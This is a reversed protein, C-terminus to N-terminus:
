RINYAIILATVFCLYPILTKMSGRKKIDDFGYALVIFYAPLFPYIFRHDLSAAVSVLMFINLGIFLLLPYFIVKKERLIKLSGTLFFVSLIIKVFNGATQLLASDNGSKYSFSPIPGIVGSIILVGQDILTPTRGIRAAALASQDVEMAENLDKQIFLIAGTLLIIGILLYGLRVFNKFRGKKNLFLYLGFSIILFIPFITRFMGTALISLFAILYLSFKRKLIAKYTYYISLTVILIFFPEKRGSANFYISIPNLGYLILLIKSVSYDTFILRSTKYLFFCSLLHFLINFVKMNFLEYGGLAYIYKVILPFGFDSIGVYQFLYNISDEFGKAQLEQGIKHYFIEDTPEFGLPNNYFETYFYFSGFVYLIQYVLIFFFINKISTKQSLIFFLLFGFLIINHFTGYVDYYDYGSYYTIIIQFFLFLLLASFIVKLNLKEIM